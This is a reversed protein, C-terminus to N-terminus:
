RCTEEAALSSEGGAQLAGLLLNAVAEDIPQGTLGQFYTFGPSSNVEFCYWVGNPTRRLDIGAVALNLAMATHRCRDTIEDPLTCTRVEAAQGSLYGYRYDDASSQVECAFVNPGIVHVRVDTGPIREQFQTPCWHLHEQLRGLHDSTLRTVISRVGSVSKYVVEGYDRWFQIAMDFDTTVLTHPVAFGLNRILSLQFPKSANAAMATPRNVVLASTMELWGGVAHEVNRAHRSEESGPGALKVEPVHSYEYPRIYAASVSELDLEDDDVRLRGAVRTGVELNVETELVSRQDLFAVPAHRRLLQAYVAALPADDPIGWLLIM